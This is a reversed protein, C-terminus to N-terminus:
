PRPRRTRLGEPSERSQRFLPAEPHALHGRPCGATEALEPMGPRGPDHDDLWMGNLVVTPPNTLRTPVIPGNRPVM